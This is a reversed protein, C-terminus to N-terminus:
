IMKVNPLHKILPVAPYRLRYSASVHVSSVDITMHLMLTHIVEYFCCVARAHFYNQEHLFYAVKFLKLSSHDFRTSTENFSFGKM